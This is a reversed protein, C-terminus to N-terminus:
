FLSHFVVASAGADEMRKINDLKESLPSASAVLPTRLKFGLYTTTLKMTEKRETSPPDLTAVTTPRHVDTANQQATITSALGVCGRDPVVRSHDRERVLTRASERFIQEAAEAQAIKACHIGLETCHM